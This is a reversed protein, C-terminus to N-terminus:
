FEEDQDTFRFTTESSTFSDPTAGGSSKRDAEILPFPLDVDPGGVLKALDNWTRMTNYQGSGSMQRKALKDDLFLQGMRPSIQSKREAIFGIEALSDAGSETFKAAMSVILPPAYGLLTGDDDCVGIERQTSGTIALWNERLQEQNGNILHFLIHEAFVLKPLQPTDEKVMRQLSDFMSDFAPSLLDTKRDPPQSM